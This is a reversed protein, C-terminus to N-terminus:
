RLVVQNHTIENESYNECRQNHIQFLNKNYFVVCGDPGINNKMELCPSEFKPM